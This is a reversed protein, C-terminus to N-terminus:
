SIGHCRASVSNLQTNDVILCYNLAALKRIVQSGFYLNNRLNDENVSSGNFYKVGLEYEKSSRQWLEAIMHKNPWPLDDDQDMDVNDDQSDENPTANYDEPIDAELDNYAIDIGTITSFADGAVRALSLDDMKNILSVIYRPDGVIGAGIVADRQRSEDNAWQKLLQESKANDMSLLGLKMAQQKYPNDNEAFMMLKDLASNDGLLVTSFCAHFKLQPDDSDLYDSINALLDTRGLEGALRIARAKVLNNNDQIGKLVMHGPDKRHVSCAAFSLYRQYDGGSKFYNEIREQIVAFPCWGFASVLARTLEATQSAINIVHNIKDEDNSELALVSAAFIEGPEEFDLAQKCVQWGSDGAVRLGDLHSEIREDLRALDKSNYSPSRVAKDRLLWLFASEEAHQSIVHQLAGETM